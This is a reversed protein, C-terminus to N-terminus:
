DTIANNKELVHAILRDKEAEALEIAKEAAKESYRTTEKLLIKTGSYATTKVCLISGDERRDVEVPTVSLYYGRREQAGSFYNVGGLQYYVQIRLELGEKEIFEEKIRRM